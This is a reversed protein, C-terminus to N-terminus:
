RTEELWWRLLFHAIARSTPAKLGTSAEGKEIAEAVEARKTNLIKNLIDSM